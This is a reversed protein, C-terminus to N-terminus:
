RMTVIVTSFCVIETPAGPVKLKVLEIVAAVQGPNLRSSLPMLVIVSSGPVYVTDSSSALEIKKASVSM